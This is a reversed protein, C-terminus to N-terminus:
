NKWNKSEIFRMTVEFKQGSIYYLIYTNYWVVFM